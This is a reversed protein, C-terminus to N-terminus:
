FPLEDYSWEVGSKVVVYNLKEVSKSRELKRELWHEDEVKSFTSVLAKWKEEAEKWKISDMQRDIAQLVEDLEKFPFRDTCVHRKSYIDDPSECAHYWGQNPEYSWAFHPKFHLMVEFQEMEEETFLGLSRWAAKVKRAIAKEDDQKTVLAFRHMLLFPVVFQDSHHITLYLCIKELEEWRLAHPHCQIFDNWGLEFPALLSPHSLYLTSDVIREGICVMFASDDTIKFEIPDVLEPYIIYQSPHIKEDPKFFIYERWFSRQKFFTNWLDFEDVIDIELDHRRVIANMKSQKILCNQFDDKGIVEKLLDRVATEMSDHFRIILYTTYNWFEILVMCRPDALGHQYFVTTTKKERATFRAQEYSTKNFPIHLLPMLNELLEVTKNDDISTQFQLIGQYKELMQQENM